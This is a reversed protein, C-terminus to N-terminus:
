RVPGSRRTIGLSATRLSLPNLPSPLVPRSHQRCRSGSERCPHVARRRAASRRRVASTRERSRIGRCRAPRRSASQRRRPHELFGRNIGAANADARNQGVTPSRQRNRPSRHIGLDPSDNAGRASTSATGRTATPSTSRPETRRRHAFSSRRSRPPSGPADTARFGAAEDLGLIVPGGGPM